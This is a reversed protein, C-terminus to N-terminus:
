AICRVAERQQRIGEKIAPLYDSSQIKSFDPAGFPLESEQLLPNERQAQQCSSLPMMMASAIGIAMLTKTIKM